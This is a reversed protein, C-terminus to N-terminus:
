NGQIARVQLLPAVAEAMENASAPKSLVPAEPWESRLVDGALQGTYFLFPINRAKLVRAVPGITERGIRLDLVAASLTFNTALELAESLTHAPGLVTAGAAELNAQVDMAVIVEDEVVLVRAGKLVGLPALPEGTAAVEPQTPMPSLSKM